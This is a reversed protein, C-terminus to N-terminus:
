DNEKDQRAHAQKARAKILWPPAPKEARCNHTALKRWTNDVVAQCDDCVAVEGTARFTTM